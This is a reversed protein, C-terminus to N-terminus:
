MKLFHEQYVNSAQKGNMVPRHLGYVHFLAHSNM